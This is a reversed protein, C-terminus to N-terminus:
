GGERQSVRSADRLDLEELLPGNLHLGNHVEVLSTKMWGHAAVYLEGAVLNGSRNLHVAERRDTFAVIHDADGL